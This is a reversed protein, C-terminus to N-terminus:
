KLSGEAPMDLNVVVNEWIWDEWYDDYADSLLQGPVSGVLNLPSSLAQLLLDILESAVANAASVDDHSQFSKLLADRLAAHAQGKNDAFYIREIAAQIISDHAKYYNDTIM